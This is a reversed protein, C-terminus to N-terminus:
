YEFINDVYQFSLYLDFLECLLSFDCFPDNVIYKCDGSFLIIQM